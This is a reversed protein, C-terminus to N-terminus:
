LFVCFLAGVSTETVNTGFIKQCDKEKLKGIRKKNNM